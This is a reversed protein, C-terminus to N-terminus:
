NYKLNKHFDNSKEEAAIQGMHQHKFREYELEQQKLVMFASRNKEANDDVEKELVELMKVADDYCDSSPNIMSLVGLGEDYRNGALFAKARMMEKKCQKAMHNEYIEIVLEEVIAHCAVEKPIPWLLALAESTLHLKNLQKAQTMLKDCMGEYYRVIELHTDNMFRNWKSSRTNINKIANNIAQGKNKGSGQLEVTIDSFIVDEYIYQVTLTLSVDVVTLKKMGADIKRTDYVEFKPVCVVGKAMLSMFDPSSTSDGQIRFASIKAATGNKAILSITKNELRKMQTNSLEYVTDIPMYVGISLWESYDIPEEENNQAILSFPIIFFLFLTILIQKSM